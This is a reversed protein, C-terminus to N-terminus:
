SHKCADREKGLVQVATAEIGVGGKHQIRLYPGIRGWTLPCPRAKNCRNGSVAGDAPSSLTPRRNRIVSFVLKLMRASNVLAKLRVNNGPGVEVFAKAVCVLTLLASGFLLAVTPKPKILVV